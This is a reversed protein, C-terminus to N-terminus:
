KPASTLKAVSLLEGVLDDMGNWKAVVAVTDELMEPPMRLCYERVKATENQRCLYAVYERSFAPVESSGLRGAVVAREQMKEGHGGETLLSALPRASECKAEWRGVLGSSPTAKSVRSGALRMWCGAREDYFYHQTTGYGVDPSSVTAVLRGDSISCSSVYGKMVIDRVSASAARELDRGGDHVWWSRAAGGETVVTLSMRGEEGRAGERDLSVLAVASGLAIVPSELYLGDKKLSLVRVEGLDNGLAALRGLRM